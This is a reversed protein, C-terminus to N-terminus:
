KWVRVVRMEAFAFVTDRGAAFLVILMTASGMHQVALLAIHHDGGGSRMNFQARSESTWRRPASRRMIIKRILDLRATCAWNPGGAHCNMLEISDTQVM